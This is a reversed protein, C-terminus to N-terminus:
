SIIIPTLYYICMGDVKAGKIAFQNLTCTNNVPLLSDPYICIGQWHENVHQTALESAVFTFLDCTKLLRIADKESRRAELLDSATCPFVSLYNLVTNRPDSPVSDTPSTTTSDHGSASGSYSADLEEAGDELQARSRCSLLSFVFFLM